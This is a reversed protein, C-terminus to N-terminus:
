GRPYPTTPFHPRTFTHLFIASLAIEKHNLSFKQRKGRGEGGLETAYWITTGVSIQETKKSTSIGGNKNSKNGKYGTDNCKVGSRVFELVIVDINRFQPIANCESLCM